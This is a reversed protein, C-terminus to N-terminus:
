CRVLHRWLLSSYFFFSRGQRLGKSSNFSGERMEMLWSLFDFLLSVLMYGGVGNPMLAM